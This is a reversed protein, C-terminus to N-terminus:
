AATFNGGQIIRYEQRFQCNLLAKGIRAPFGPLFIRAGTKVHSSKARKGDGVRVSAEHLRPRLSCKSGCAIPLRNSTLDIDITVFFTKKKTSFIYSTKLKTFKSDQPTPRLWTHDTLSVDNRSNGLKQRQKLVLRKAFGKVGSTKYNVSCHLHITEKEKEFPEKDM